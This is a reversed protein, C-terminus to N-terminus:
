GGWMLRAAVNGAWVAGVGLVVQLGASQAAALAQGDRVLQFTEYGFTSFTTFGGLVGIFLFARTTGSFVGRSESLGALLGIALCGLVNIILTEVPFFWGSKMRGVLGGLGYRLMSGLCGGLGVLLAKEM